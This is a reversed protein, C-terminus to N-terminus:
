EKMLESKKKENARIVEKKKRIKSVYEKTGKRLGM